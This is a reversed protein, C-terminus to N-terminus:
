KTVEYIKRVLYIPRRKSELYTKGLYEGLIGISLLQLGGLFTIAVMLSAYGPVDVGYVMVRILIFVAYAISCVSVGLGLYTSLRLPQTSFSAIGDVAFNWLKWANFKSDGAMRQPRVYDVYATKFGVWAFLGKMFRGSEPLQNMADVVIRDMLRFDGVNEPLAPKSLWNFVRYFLLASNRKAWSDADRNVRRGLVVEYGAQWQAVMPHLLEPPDQLDVDIPVVANGKAVRLGASLAAEKGFNRSLDVIKIRPDVAQALLLHELTADSSGDNIFVWEFELQPFHSLINALTQNISAVFHDIVLAENFVPVVLSILQQGEHLATVDKLQNSMTILGTVLAAHSLALLRILGLIPM